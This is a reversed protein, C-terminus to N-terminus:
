GAPPRAKQTPERGVDHRWPAWHASWGAACEWPESGVPAGQITRATATPFFSVLTTSEQHPRVPM